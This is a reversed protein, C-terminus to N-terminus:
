KEFLVSVIWFCVFAWMLVEVVGVVGGMVVGKDGWLVSPTIIKVKSFLVSIIWFCLM